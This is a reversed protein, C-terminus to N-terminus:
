KRATNKCYRFFKPITKATATTSRSLYRSKSIALISYDDFTCFTFGNEALYKVQKEFESPKVYLEALGGPNHESSTHYMLVPMDKSVPEAIELLEPIETTPEETTEPETTQILETTPAESAELAAGTVSDGSKTANLLVFIQAALVCVCLAMLATKFIRKMIM